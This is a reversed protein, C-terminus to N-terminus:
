IFEKLKHWKQLENFDALSTGNLRLWDEIILFDKRPLNPVSAVANLYDMGNALADAIHLSARKTLAGPAECKVGQEYKYFYEKKPKKTFEVRLNFQRAVTQVHKSTTRSYKGLEILKDGVIKAVVTEYSIVNNGKVWLNDKIKLTQM